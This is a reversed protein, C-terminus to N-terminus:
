ETSSIPLFLIQLCLGIYSACFDPFIKRSSELYEETYNIKGYTRGQSYFLCFNGGPYGGNGKAQSSAYVTRAFPTERASSHVTGTLTLFRNIDPRNHDVCRDPGKGPQRKNGKEHRQEWPAGRTPPFGRWAKRGTVRQLPRAGCPIEAKTRHGSLLLNEREGKEEM